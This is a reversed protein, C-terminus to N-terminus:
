DRNKVTIAAMVGDGPLIWSLFRLMHGNLTKVLRTKESNGNTMFGFGVVDLDIDNSYNFHICYHKCPKNIQHSFVTDDIDTYTEYTMDIAIKNDFKLEDRINKIDAYFIKDYHNGPEDTNDGMKLEIHEKKEENIYLEKLSVTDAGRVPNIQTELIQELDCLKNNITEACYTKRITKKLYKKGDIKDVNIDVYMIYEKYYYDKLINDMENDIVSVINNDGLDKNPMYLNNLIATKLERKRETSLVKLVENESLIECMRKKTYNVYGFWELLLSGVSISILLQGISNLINNWKASGINLCCFVIGLALVIASEGFIALLNLKQERKQERKLNNKETTIM